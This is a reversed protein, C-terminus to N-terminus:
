ARLGSQSHEDKKLVEARDLVQNMAAEIQALSGEAAGPRAIFLCDWGGEIQGQLRRVSERMLRKVRNRVTAGGIQRSASFAFRSDPRGNARILLVLLPHHFDQGQERLRELDSAHRLRYRRQM